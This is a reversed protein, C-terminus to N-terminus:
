GVALAQEFAGHSLLPEAGTGVIADQLYGAGDRVEFANEVDLGLVDGLCNLIASQVAGEPGLTTHPDSM